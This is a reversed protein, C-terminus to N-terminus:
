NKCVKSQSNGPRHNVEPLKVLDLNGPKTQSSGTDSKVKIKSSHIDLPRHKEKQQNCAVAKDNRKYDINVSLIPQVDNSCRNSLPINPRRVEHSSNERFETTQACSTDHM